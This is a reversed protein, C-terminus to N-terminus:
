IRQKSTVTQATALPNTSIVAHPLVFTIETGLQSLGKTLGYCAMGLGGSIYPPFEWGLMLVRMIPRRNRMGCFRSCAKGRRGVKKDDEDDDQREGIETGSRIIM